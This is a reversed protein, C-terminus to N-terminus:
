EMYDLDAKSDRTFSHYRVRNRLLGSAAALIEQLEQPYIRSHFSILHAPCKMAGSKCDSAGFYPVPISAEPLSALTKSWLCEQRLEINVSYYGILDAHKRLYDIHWHPHGDGRVHRSIRAKLGGPGLASGLYFYEGAPFAFRGLRGIQLYKPNAMYLHLAYAGKETSASIVM